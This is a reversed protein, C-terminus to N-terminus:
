RRGRRRAVVLACAILALAWGLALWNGAAVPLRSCESWPAYRVAGNADLRLRLVRLQTFDIPRPTRFLLTASRAAAATYGAINLSVPQTGDVPDAFTLAITDGRLVIPAGAATREIISGTGTTFISRAALSIGGDAAM